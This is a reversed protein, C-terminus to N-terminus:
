AFLREVAEDYSVAAQAVALNQRTTRWETLDEWGAEDDADLERALEAPSAVDHRDELNAITEKMRRIGDIIEERSHDARIERIRQVLLEEENRRYYATRGRQESVVLGVEELSELHKRATPPSVRAREAIEQATADETLTKAIAAVRELATTEDTWDEEVTPM